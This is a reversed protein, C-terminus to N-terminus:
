YKMLQHAANPPAAAPQRGYHAKQEAHEQESLLHTHWLTKEIRQPSLARLKSGHVTSARLNAAVTAREEASQGGIFAYASSASPISAVDKNVLEAYWARGVKEAASVVAYPVAVAPLASCPVASSLTVDRSLEHRPTVAHSEAHRDTVIRSELTVNQSETNDRNTVHDPLASAIAQRRERSDKQRQKDSKSTEQSEIWDPVILVDGRHHVAKRKILKALAPEVFELPLGTQLAVAEAPTADELGLVGARDVKRELHLLVTQAEWGLLKWATDDRTYVRIYPENAFDM